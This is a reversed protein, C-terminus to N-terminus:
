VHSDSDNATSVIISITNIIKVALTAANILIIDKNRDKVFDDNVRKDKIRLSLSEM